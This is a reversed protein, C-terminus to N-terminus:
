VIGQSYGIRGSHVADDGAAVGDRTDDQIKKRAKEIKEIKPIKEFVQKEVAQKEPTKAPQDAM